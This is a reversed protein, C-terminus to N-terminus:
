LVMEEYELGFVDAVAKFVVKGNVINLGRYLAKDEKCAEDEAGSRHRRYSATVVM